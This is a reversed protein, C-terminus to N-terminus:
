HYYTVAGLRRASRAMLALQRPLSDLTVKALNLTARVVDDRYDLLWVVDIRIPPQDASRVYRFQFPPAEGDLRCDLEHIAFEFRQMLLAEERTVPLVPDLEGCSAADAMLDHFASELEFEHKTWGHSALFAEDYPDDLDDFEVAHMEQYIYLLPTRYM